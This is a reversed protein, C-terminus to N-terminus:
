HYDRDRSAGPSVNRGYERGPRRNMARRDNYDRNGRMGRHDRNMADRHDFDRDMRGRERASRDRDRAFDDRDQSRTYQRSDQDSNQRPAAAAPSLAAMAMLAILTAKM